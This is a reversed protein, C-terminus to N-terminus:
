LVVNPSCPIVRCRPCVKYLRRDKLHQSSAAIEIIDISATM